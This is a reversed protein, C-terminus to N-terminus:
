FTRIGPPQGPPHDPKSKVSVYILYQRRILVNGTNKDSKQSAPINNM